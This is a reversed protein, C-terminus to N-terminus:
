GGPPTYDEDFNAIPYGESKLQLSFPPWAVCAASHPAIAKARM